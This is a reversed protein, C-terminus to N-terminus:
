SLSYRKEIDAIEDVRRQHRGGEFEAELWTDVIMLALGEGIVRQGMTIMNADNHNRCAKASFTDHVLAARVGPVKNAAIGIGIGTGCIRIGRDFEGAAVAKAVPIAIDPYDCSQTDHTGFDQYEYGNEALFKIVAQKLEFGGHDCGVAIKM